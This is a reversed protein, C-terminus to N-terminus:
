REKKTATATAVPTAAAGGSDGCASAEDRRRTFDLAGPNAKYANLMKKELWSKAKARSERGAPGSADAEVLPRVLLVVLPLAASYWSIGASGPLEFTVWAVQLLLLLCAKFIAPGWRAAAIGNQLQRWLQGVPDWHSDSGPLTKSDPSLNSSVSAREVDTKRRLWDDSRMAESMTLKDDEHNSDSEEERAGAEETVAELVTARSNLIGRFGSSRNAERVAIKLDKLLARADRLEVAEPGLVGLLRCSSVADELAEELGALSACAGAVHTETSIVKFRAQARRHLLIGRTFEQGDNPTRKKEAYWLGLTAARDTNYFDARRQFALSLCLCVDLVAATLRSKTPGADDELLGGFARGEESFDCHHLAALCLHVAVETKGGKLAVNGKETLREADCIRDSAAEKRPFTKRCWAMVLDAEKDLCFHRLLCEKASSDM